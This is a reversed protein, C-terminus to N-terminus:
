LSCQAFLNFHGPTVNCPSGKESRELIYSNALNGKWIRWAFLNSRNLNEWDTFIRRSLQIIALEVISDIVISPQAEIETTNM